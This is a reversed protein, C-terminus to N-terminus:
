AARRVIGRPEVWGVGPLGSADGRLLFRARDVPGPLQWDVTAVASFGFRGYFSANGILMLPPVGSADVAALATNIMRTAIGEGQRDTATVVPGLLVLPQPAGVLGRLQVPWCQLSGVLAKGDRAIFSLAPLPFVGDRLRYATRNRRAPGFGADLMVAIEPLDASTASCIQLMLQIVKPRTLSIM